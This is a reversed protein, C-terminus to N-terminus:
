KSTGESRGQTVTGSLGMAALLEGSWMESCAKWSLDPVKRVGTEPTQLCLPCLHESMQPIGLRLLNFEEQSMLMQM